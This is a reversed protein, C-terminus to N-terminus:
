KATNNQPPFMDEQPPFMGQDGGRLYFGSARSRTGRRSYTVDNILVNGNM